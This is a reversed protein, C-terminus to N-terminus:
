IQMCKEREITDIRRGEQAEKEAKKVAKKVEKEFDTFPKDIIKAATLIKNFTSM